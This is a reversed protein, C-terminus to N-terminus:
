QAMLSRRVLQLELPEELFTVWGDAGPRFWRGEVLYADDGGYYIHPYFAIDPPVDRVVETRVLHPAEASSCAPGALPLLCALPLGCWL